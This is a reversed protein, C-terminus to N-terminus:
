FHTHTMSTHFINLFIDQLSINVGDGAELKEIITYRSSSCRKLIVKYLLRLNKKPLIKCHTNRLDEALELKTMILCM